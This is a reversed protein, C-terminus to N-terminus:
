ETFPRSSGPELSGEGEGGGGGGGGGKKRLGGGGVEEKWLSLM